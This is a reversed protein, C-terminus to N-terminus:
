GLRADALVFRKQISNPPLFHLYFGAACVYPDTMAVCETDSVFSGQDCRRCAGDPHEPTPLRWEYMASPCRYTAPWGVWCRTDAASTSREISGTQM